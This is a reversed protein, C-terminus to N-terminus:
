TAEMPCLLYSDKDRTCDYSVVTIPYRLSEGDSGVGRRSIGTHDLLQLLSVLGLGVNM